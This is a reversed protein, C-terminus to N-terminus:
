TKLRESRSLIPLVRWRMYAVYTAMLLLVFTTAASGIENRAIHYVTASIMVIMLGAAAWAVMRPQIRTMGPLTLGVAAAVEAVGIFLSFWRPLSANMQVAIEPPPFLMMLGHALFAVALLVQLVWLGVNM